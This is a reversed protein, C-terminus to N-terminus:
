AIALFVYTGGSANLGAPATSTVTFGANLPDIYDTSTVEAASSNLLSYPDNGAIIGRASDWVYWDTSNDHTAKILVFRAGSTFGCDVDINNGTGSYSGVKSVGSVSSFLYAIYTGSSNNVYGDTGLSFVTSTPATDNWVGNYTSASNPSQLQLYKTPGIASHYVAWAAVADRRKVWMMEPTEGLNHSISRNSGNGAYGVIDFFGPARRFLFGCQDSAASRASNFYVGENSDFEWISTVEAATSNTVLYQNKRLRDTTLGNLSSGSTVVNISLDVPFNSTYVLQSATGNTAERPIQVHFVETGAAPPKHPRRIAMYIYEKLNGNHDANNLKFGTSTVSLNLLGSLSVNGEAAGTNLLLHNQNDSDVTWGRMTDYQYWNGTDGSSIKLILFQPEFGLNIEQSTGNGTYSGCKIISEDGGTGFSQDDHAFVYAVYSSGNANVLSSSGVTFETSTPETDNWQSNSTGEANTLNLLIYKTAGLSRHYVSWNGTSNTKKVIIMGPQSGLSHAVTRGATGNGTYTVVDFFGPAKRFTWSAYTQTNANVGADTGLSFGNNNYQSIYNTGGFEGGIDDPRLLKFNTRETDGLIHEQSGDRRKIWVMGGEGALDIDNTITRASGNGEYLYTSFVDDAYLGEGAASGAAAQTLQKGLM